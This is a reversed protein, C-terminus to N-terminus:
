NCAAVARRAADSCSTGDCEFSGGRETRYECQSATCCARIAGCRATTRVTSCSYPDCGMAMAMALGLLVFAKRM